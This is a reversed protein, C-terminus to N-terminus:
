QHTRETWEVHARITGTADDVWGYPRAKAIMRDLGQQWTADAELAPWRRLAAEHVWATEVGDFRAIGAFGATLAEPPLDQAEIVVKFSKFDRAEDLLVTGGSWRLQM